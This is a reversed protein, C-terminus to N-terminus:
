PKGHGQRPLSVHGADVGHDTLNLYPATSHMPWAIAAANVLIMHDDIIASSLIYDM